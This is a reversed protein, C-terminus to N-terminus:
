HTHTRAHLYNKSMSGACGVALTALPSQLRILQHVQVVEMSLGQSGEGFILLPRDGASIM